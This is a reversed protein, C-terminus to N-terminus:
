KATYFFNGDHKQEMIRGKIRLEKILRETEIRNLNLSKSIDDPTVPRRRAMEFIRDIKSDTIDGRNKFPLAAIVETNGGFYKQAEELDTKSVSIANQDAPPRVVTNLQVRDPSIDRICKRLGSFEKENDNIGKLLVIELFFDKKYEKRMEKLGHLIKNLDLDPHPRHIKKHTEEYVSCLTPMLIDVGICRERIDKKWLLSGNTLLAVPISTINKIESTLVGIDRNLTPEGSGALTIIDPHTKSLVIELEEIIEPVSSFSSPEMILDTTRGVECYVCNYSCTKCPILDIGLSLGLRRSPVPGFIHPM